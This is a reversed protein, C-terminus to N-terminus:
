INMHQLNNTVQIAKRIDATDLPKKEFAKMETNVSKENWASFYYPSQKHNEIIYDLAKNSLDYLKNSQFTSALRFVREGNEKLL